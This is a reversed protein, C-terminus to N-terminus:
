TPRRRLPALGASNGTTCAVFNSSTMLAEVALISPRVTGSLSSTAASSTISDRAAIEDGQEAALGGCPRERRERLLGALDSPDANQTRREGWLIGGVVFAEEIFQSLKTEALVPIECDM